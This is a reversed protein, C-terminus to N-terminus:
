TFEEAVNHGVRGFGCIIHHNKLKIIEKEMRRRGFVDSLYSEILLEIFSGVAYAASGVGSFILLVVFVKGTTSLPKILGYGVTSVTIVTMYLADLFSLNEILIFGATGVVLVVLLVLLVIKLRRPIKM